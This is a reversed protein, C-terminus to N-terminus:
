GANGLMDNLAAVVTLRAEIGLIVVLAIETVEFVGRIAVDTANV